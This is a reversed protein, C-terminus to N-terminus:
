VHASSTALFVFFSDIGLKGVRCLVMTAPQSGCQGLGRVAVHLRLIKPSFLDNLEVQHNGSDSKISGGFFAM